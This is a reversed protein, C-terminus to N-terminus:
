AGYSAYNFCRRVKSFIIQNSAYVELENSNEGEYCVSDKPIICKIIRFDPKGEIFVSYYIGAIINRVDEEEIFSCYANDKISIIGDKNICIDIDKKSLVGRILSENQFFDNWTENKYNFVELRWCIINEEVKILKCYNIM